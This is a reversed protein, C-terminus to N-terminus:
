NQKNYKRITKVKHTIFNFKELEDLTLPRNQKMIDLLDKVDKKAVVSYMNALDEELTALQIATEILTEADGTLSSVYPNHILFRHENDWIRRDAFLWIITASSMVDGSNKAIIESGMKKVEGLIDVIMDAAEVYGGPSSFDIYVPEGEVYSELENVIDTVTDGNIEGHIKLEM